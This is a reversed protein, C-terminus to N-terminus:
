TYLPTVRSRPDPSLILKPEAERADAHGGAEKHRHTEFFVVNSVYMLVLSFILKQEAKRAELRTKPRHFVLRTNM